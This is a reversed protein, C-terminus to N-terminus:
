KKLYIAVAATIKLFEPIIFPLVGCQLVNDWGVFGSLWVCGCLHNVAYCIICAGIPSLSHKLAVGILPNGFLMGILYGATPGGLGGVPSAFVPLGAAGLMLWGFVASFSERPSLMLGLYYIAFMQLTIPVPFLPVAVKSSIILGAIALIVNRASSTTNVASTMYGENFKLPATSFVRVEM